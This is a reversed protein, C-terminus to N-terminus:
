KGYKKELIEFAACIKITMASSEPSCDHKDPHWTVIAKKYAKVVETWTANKSLGLIDFPDDSGCVEVSREFGMRQHFDARWSEPSGYGETTPDYKKYGDLFGKKPKKPKNTM